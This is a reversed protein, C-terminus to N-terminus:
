PRPNANAERINDELGAASGACILRANAARTAHWFCEFTNRASALSNLLEDLTGDDGNERIFKKLDEKSMGLIKWAVSLTVLHSHSMRMWDTYKPPARLVEAPVPEFEFAAWEASTTPQILDYLTSNAM